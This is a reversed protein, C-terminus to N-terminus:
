QPLTGQTRRKLIELENRTFGRSSRQKRINRPEAFSGLGDGGGEYSGGVPAHSVNVCQLGGGDDVGFIYTWYGECAIGPNTAAGTQSPSSVLVLGCIAIIAVIAAMMVEHKM